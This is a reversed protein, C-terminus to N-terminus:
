SIFSTDEVKVNEGLCELFNIFNESTQEMKNSLIEEITRQRRGIFVVPIVHKETYCRDSFSEVLELGQPTCLLWQKNKKSSLFVDSMLAPNMKTKAAILYEITQGKSASKKSTTTARVVKNEKKDKKEKKVFQLKYNNTEYCNSITLYSSFLNFTIIESKNDVITCQNGGTTSKKFFDISHSGLKRNNMFNEFFFSFYEDRLKNKFNSEDFKYLMFAIVKEFLPENPDVTCILDTAFQIIFTFQENSCKQTKAFSALKDCM